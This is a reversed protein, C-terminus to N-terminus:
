PGKLSFDSGSSEPIMHAFSLQVRINDEQATLLCFILEQLNKKGAPFSDICRFISRCAFGSFAEGPNGLRRMSKTRCMSDAYKSSITVKQVSVVRLIDYTM